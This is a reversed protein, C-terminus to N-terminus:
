RKAMVVYVTTELDVGETKPSFRGEVLKERIEDEPITGIEAREARCVDLDSRVGAVSAIVVTAFLGLSLGCSQPKLLSFAFGVLCVIATLYLLYGESHQLHFRERPHQKMLQDRVFGFAILSQERPIRFTSELYILKCRDPDAHFWQVSRSLFRDGVLTKFVLYVAAGVALAALPSLVDGLAARLSVMWPRNVLVAVFVCLIGTYGYRLLERMSLKDM